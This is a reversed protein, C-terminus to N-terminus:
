KMLILKEITSISYTYSPSGGAFSKFEFYHGQVGIADILGRVMLTDILAIYNDTIDNRHLINYENLLLKVGPTCYQRALQFATIVWDWGTTGSGGLANMFPPPANFPENVVDIFTM